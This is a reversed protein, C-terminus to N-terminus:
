GYYYLIFITAGLVIRYWAFVDLSHNTLYKLLYRLSFYGIVLSILFGVLFALIEASPLGIHSLDYVKKVGAGFVAPLSLLFSFRAAEERKLNEGLGAIITIGSRSVGPILAFVQAMGIKIAQGFSLEKLTNNKFGLREYFFFLLGFVMLLIAVTLLNRFVEELLDGFWYGVALVPLSAVLIM